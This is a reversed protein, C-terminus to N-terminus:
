GHREPHGRLLPHSEYAVEVRDIPPDTPTDNRHAIVRVYGLHEGRDQELASIETANDPAVDHQWDLWRRWGDPMTDARDVDLVGSRRWHNRWWTASHLCAMSPEWWDRLHEPPLGDIERTLGAGAIALAGGPRLFAALYNAYLDDTGYYLFSDISIVADFFGPAFPLARADARIPFVADAVGADRARAAREGPDFWLDTAWVQVGFERHLFVSSAGRGCGLDLVRMDPRLEM